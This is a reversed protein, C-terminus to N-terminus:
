PCSYIDHQRYYFSSYPLTNIDDITFNKGEYFGLVMNPYGDPLAANLALYGDTERMYGGTMTKSNFALMGAGYGPSYDKLLQIDTSIPGLCSGYDIADNNYIPAASTYRNESTVYVPAGSSATIVVTFSTKGANAQSYVYSMVRVSKTAGTNNKWTAYSNLGGNYDDNWAVITAKYASPAASASTKYFAILVPDTGADSASATMVLTQGAAVSVDRYHVFNFLIRGSKVQFSQFTGAAAKGLAQTAGAEPVGKPGAADPEAPLDLPPLGYKARLAPAAEAMAKPSLGQAKLALWDHEFATPTRPSDAPQEAPSPNAVVPSEPQNCGMLGLGLSLALAAPLVAFSPSFSFPNM